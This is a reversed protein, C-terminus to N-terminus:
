ARDARLRELLVAAAALAARHRGLAGGLFATRTERHSGRPTVVAIDVVTDSGTPSAVIGVGVEAQAARRVRQAIETADPEAGGRQSETLLLADVDGLIGALSGGTGVEGVALSWGHDALARGIASSWTEDGEGWVFRGALERVSSETAALLEAASRGDAAVAAIRIDVAEARAYTAVSPNAGALLLEGLLAALQSEGIGSTRLTRVARGVGLGDVRLRPLVSDRWMPRMERPPGPLAVILRDELTRVWWGPATGNPNSLAEASPILWAQKRNVEPFPLGRRRWLSRLVAELEADVTPTEDLLAAIAERTLDDPTPGLGGTSVVLDVRELAARFVGVISDLDDSVATLRLVTVGETTLDHALEGANTDRTEGATLETGVSLVEARHVHRAV